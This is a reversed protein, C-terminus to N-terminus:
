AGRPSPSRPPAFLAAVDPKTVKGMANRPLAAVVRLARPIKYPALREKAWLKLGDLDLSAGPRLEVAAAVREGYDPDPTGVVACELIAPHERLVDEIELASLKYGGSKIIDVSTRGLIRYAGRELVAVDGTRFWGDRFAGRTADDRGWYELFVNEGRVEIEGPTGPDVEHGADDVLRVHVGPLPTGVFGPRREGVLPNSLAMGIETMGYRELLTHGTLERWRELTSVPLAASGSVMLRLGATGDRWRRQQAAPAAEWAQILKRYITPVAMFLTPEGSALRDWVTHADFAPLM